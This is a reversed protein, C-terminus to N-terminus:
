RRRRRVDRNHLVPGAVRKVAESRGDLVDVDIVVILETVARVDVSELAFRAREELRDREIGSSV